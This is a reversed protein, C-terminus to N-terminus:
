SAQYAKDKKQDESCMLGISAGFVIPNVMLSAAIFNDEFAEQSWGAAVEHLDEDSLDGTEAPRPRLPVLIENEKPEEQEIFKVTMGEPIEIGNEKLVATSDALLRKKFEDDTWAKAIVKAYEKREDITNKMHLERIASDSATGGAV